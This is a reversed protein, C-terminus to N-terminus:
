SKSILQISSIFSSVNLKFRKAGPSDPVYPEDLSVDSDGAVDVTAEGFPDDLEVESISVDRVEDEEQSSSDM